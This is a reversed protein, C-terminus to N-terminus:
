FATLSNFFKHRLTLFNGRFVKKLKNWNRESKNWGKKVLVLVDFIARKLPFDHIFIKKRKERMKSSFPDFFPKERGFFPYFNPPFADCFSLIQFFKQTKKTSKCGLLM